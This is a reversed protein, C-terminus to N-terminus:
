LAAIRAGAPIQGTEVYRWLAVLLKRALAVIMVKRIRGRANGTREAFWRSLASQPQFRLWRWALQVLVHRVRASGNKGIGQERNMGGSQFPTGTLGAFSAIARRNGFPRCFMERVLLTATEVGLGVLHVLLRIMREARDPDAATVVRDRAAEVERLQDSLLRHRAMLRRLEAMTQEPLPEGAFTRLAELREMATKLRPKFWVAGHLCLLSEIRNELQVRESVLRKRERGPRRMDEEAESAIRVMSCVRPEGRLWALFTRLLLDLDIRDTKARRSRRPMPISAPHMIEVEIGRALLYRAIWFGDRGAEYTLVVRRIRRGAAEAEGKWWGIVGLLGAMERAAIRRRPRRSVGPVVAGVEWWKGSLELAVVLTSDHDFAAATNHSAFQVEM